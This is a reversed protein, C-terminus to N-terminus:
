FRGYQRYADLPLVGELIAKRVLNETHIVEEAKVIVEEAVAQPIVIVGDRDGLMLDGPRVDVEGIRVPM